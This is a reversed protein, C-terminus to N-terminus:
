TATIRAKPVPIGAPDVVKGSITGRSEQGHLAALSCVFLTYLLRLKM